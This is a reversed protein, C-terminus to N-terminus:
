TSTDVLAEPNKKHRKYKGGIVDDACVLITFKLGAAHCPVWFIVSNKNVVTLYEFEVYIIHEGVTSM